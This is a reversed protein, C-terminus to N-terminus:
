VLEIAVTCGRYVTSQRVVAPQVTQGPRAQEKEREKQLRASEKIAVQREAELAAASAIKTSKYHNVSAVLAEAMERIVTM